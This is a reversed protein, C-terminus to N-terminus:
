RLGLRQLMRRFDAPLAARAQVKRGTEPHTFRLGAAHLMQRGASRLLPQAERRPGYTPDGVIAHHIGALHKRIQHTRGTEIRIQLHSAVPGADIVKLHSIAARGEIPQRLTRQKGSCRGRAIAEYLKEIQRQKFLATLMAEAEPGRALLLCGSTDRDLRHVAAIGREDRESRLREEVSGPGNALWGAPKDVILLDDAEVLIRPSPISTAAHPPTESLGAIEVRDGAQLPHRAMWVRRRGVFVRRQDILAKAKRGSLALQRELFAALTMGACANDVTFSRNQM